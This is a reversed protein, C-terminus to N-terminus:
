RKTNPGLAEKQVNHKQNQNEISVGNKESKLQVKDAATKLKNRRRSKSM